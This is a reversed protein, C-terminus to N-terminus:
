DNKQENIFGIGFLPVKGFMIGDKIRTIEYNNDPIIVKIVSKIAGQFSITSLISRQNGCIETIGVVQRYGLVM